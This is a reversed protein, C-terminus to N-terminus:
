ALLDDMQLRRDDDFLQRFFYPHLGELEDRLKDGELHERVRVLSNVDFDGLLDALRMAELKLTLLALPATADVLHLRDDYLRRRRCRLLLHALLELQARRDDSEHAVHVVPLCREHVRDALGVDHCALPM